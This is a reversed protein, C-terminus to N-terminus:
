QLQNGDYMNTNFRSMMGPLMQFNSCNEERRKMGYRLVPNQNHTARPEDGKDYMAM